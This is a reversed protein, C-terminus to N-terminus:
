GGRTVNKKKAQSNVLYEIRLAIGLNLILVGGLLVSGIKGMSIGCSHLPVYTPAWTVLVFVKLRARAKGKQCLCSVLTPTDTFLWCNAGGKM